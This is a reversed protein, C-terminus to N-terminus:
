TGPAVGKVPEKDRGTPAAVAAALEDETLRLGFEGTLAAAFEKDTLERRTKAHGADNVTYTRGLISRIADPDRRVIVPQWTFWSDPHTSTYHNSLVVDIPQVKNDDWRHLTVWSGAQYERLKWVEQGHEEDPTIEYIWGDVEQPGGSRYRRLSLPAPPSSGFGPDALWVNQDARVRLTLHTRPRAPGGDPGVRALLREVGFGLRDLVAGFLQAQEYCYGGRGGFVIKDQIAELSVDVTGKLFVDLNEFRVAALHARYLDHLVQESPETTGSYGVRRLYADVDLKAVSWDDTNVGSL